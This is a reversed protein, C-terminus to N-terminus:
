EKEERRARLVAEAFLMDEPTTIKINQYAGPIMKIRHTTMKEVVMADDTIAADEQKMMRSYADYLLPRAFCQPTQVNWMGSRPPTMVAYGDEDAMRMTDKAPMGAVCAGCREVERRCREVTDVDLLARACDHVMVYDGSAKQLGNYVSHYRERGGPVVFATKSIGYEQAMRSCHAEDGPSVVLIIEEVSSQQFTELAYTMMPKGALLLYQKAVDAGMRSGKGAALVIATCKSM